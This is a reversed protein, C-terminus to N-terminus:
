LGKKIPAPTTGPVRFAWGPVITEPNRRFTLFNRRAKTQQVESVAVAHLFTRMLLNTVDDVSFVTSRQSDHVISLVEFRLNQYAVRNM